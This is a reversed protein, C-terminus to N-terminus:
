LHPCFGQRGEDYFNSLSLNAKAENAKTSITRFLTPIRRLRHHKEAKGDQQKPLITVRNHIANMKVSMTMGNAGCKILITLKENRTCKKM